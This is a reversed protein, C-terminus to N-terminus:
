STTIWDYACSLEGYGSKTNIHGADKIIKLGIELINSLQYLEDVTIFEDNDSSAMISIDSKLNLPVEYPFFTSIEQINCTPSVPSVLMLKELNYKMKGSNVYAFWLINALSHCVIRHPKFTQIQFDLGSVM